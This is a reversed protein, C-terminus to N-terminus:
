LITINETLFAPIGRLTAFKIISLDSRVPLDETFIYQNFKEIFFQNSEEDESGSESISDFLIEDFDSTSLVIFEEM